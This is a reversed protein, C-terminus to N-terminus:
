NITTNSAGHCLIVMLVRVKFAPCKSTKNMPVKLYTHIEGASAQLYLLFLQLVVGHLLM